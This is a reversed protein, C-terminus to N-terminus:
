AKKLNFSIRLGEKDGKLSSIGVMPSANYRELLKGVIYLALGASKLRSVENEENSGDLFSRKEGGTMGPGNDDVHITYYEGNDDVNVAIKVNMGGLRISYGFINAFVESLLNDAMVRAGCEVYEIDVQSYHEIGEAVAVDLSVISPVSDTTRVKRVASVSHIIQSSREAALTIRRSYKRATEDPSSELLSSYGLVMHNYNSLDHAMVDLYLNAEENAEFREKEAKLQENLAIIARDKMKRFAEVEKKLDSVDEIMIIAYRNDGNEPCKYPVVSTRQEIAEGSMNEVPIVSSGFMSSFVQPICDVIADRIRETYIYDNLHPYFETIKRRCIESSKIGTWLEIQRNWFEVNYNEDVVCIGAPLNQLATFHKSIATM